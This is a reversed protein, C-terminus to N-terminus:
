EERLRSRVGVFHAAMAARAKVPDGSRVAEYIDRHRRVVDDASERTPALQDKLQFYVDWFAGLLQAVLPNGLPQYLLQHFLRDTEPSVVDAEAEQEMQDLVGVVDTYDADAHDAVLRQVLGAELVERVDIVNALDHHDTDATIRGHFTLQTVLADLSMRGVYMGLGHRIEVIGIAELAKLAERLSNRSVELEEVLDFETPLPDGASLGRAVIMDKIAQQLKESRSTRHHRARPHPHRQEGPMVGNGVAPVADVPPTIASSPIPDAAM